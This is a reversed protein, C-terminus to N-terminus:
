LMDENNNIDEINNPKDNDEPNIDSEIRIANPRCFIFAIAAMGALWILSNQRLLFYAFISIILGFGVLGLRILGFRIYYKERTGNDPVSKIRKIKYHFLWLAFPISALVYIIIISYWATAAPTDPYLGIGLNVALYYGIMGVILTVIMVLYYALTLIAKPQM